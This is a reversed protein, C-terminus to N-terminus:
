FGNFPIEVIYGKERIEEIEKLMQKESENQPIRKGLTLYLLIREKDLSLSNYDTVAEYEEM